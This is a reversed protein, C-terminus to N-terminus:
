RKFAAQILEQQEFEHVARSGVAPSASEPRAVCGLAAFFQSDQSDALKRSIYHWPGMNEPEEQVWTIRKIQAYRSLTVTLAQSPFPYLQEISIIRVDARDLESRKKVLEQVIRGSCLIITEANNTSTDPPNDIVPQFKGSALQDLSVAASRHQLLGKPTFVILPKRLRQLM